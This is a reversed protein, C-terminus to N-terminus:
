GRAAACQGERLGGKVAYAIICRLQGQYFTCHWSESLLLSSLSDHQNLAFGYLLKLKPLMKSIGHPNSPKAQYHRLRNDGQGLLLISIFIITIFRM